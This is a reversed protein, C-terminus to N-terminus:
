ACGPGVNQRGQSDQLLDGRAVAGHQHGSSVAVGLCTPVRDFVTAASQHGVGLAALGRGPLDHRGAGVTGGQPGIVLAQELGKNYRKLMDLVVELNALTQPLSERVDSFLASAQDLTPAAQQLGSRM